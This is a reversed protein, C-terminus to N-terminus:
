ITQKLRGRTTGDHHSIIQLLTYVLSPTVNEKTSTQVAQHIRPDGFELLFAYKYERPLKGVAVLEALNDIFDNGKVESLGNRIQTSLSDNGYILSSYYFLYRDQSPLGHATLLTAARPFDNTVRASMMGTNHVFNILRDILFAERISELTEGTEKITKESIPTEKPSINRVLKEMSYSKNLLARMLTAMIQWRGEQQTELIQIATDLMERNKFIESIDSRGSRQVLLAKVDSLYLNIERTGDPKPVALETSNAAKESYYKLLLEKLDEPINDPKIKTFRDYEDLQEHLLAVLLREGITSVKAKAKLLAVNTTDEIHNDSQEKQSIFGELLYFDAIDSPNLKWPKNREQSLRRYAITYDTLTPDEVASSLIGQQNKEIKEFLPSKIFSHTNTNNLDSIFSKDSILETLSSLKSINLSYNKLKIGSIFKNNELPPKIISDSEIPKNNNSEPFITLILDSLNEKPILAENINSEEPKLSFINKKFYEGTEKPKILFPYDEKPNEKDKM